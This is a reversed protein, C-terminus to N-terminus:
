NESLGMRQTYCAFFDRYARGCIASDEEYWDIGEHDGELLQRMAANCRVPDLNWVKGDGKNETAEIVRAARANSIQAPIRFIREKVKYTLEESM